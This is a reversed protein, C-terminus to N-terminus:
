RIFNSYTIDHLIYALFFIVCPNEYQHQISTLQQYYRESYHPNNRMELNSKILADIKDAIDVLHGEYTDDKANVMFDIIEDHFIPPLKMLMSRAVEKEYEEFANRVVNSSKKIPSAVDGTIGEVIDHM